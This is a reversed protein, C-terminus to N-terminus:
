PQLKPITINKQNTGTGTRYFDRRKDPKIDRYLRRNLTSTFFTVTPTGLSGATKLQWQKQMQKKGFFSLNSLIAFAEHIGKTLNM